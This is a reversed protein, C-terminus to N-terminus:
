WRNSACFCVITVAAEQVVLQRAGSTFTRCSPRPMTRPVMVVICSRVLVCATTSLPSLSQRRARADLMDSEGVVVPEALAMPSIKGSSFPWNFPRATRTGNSLAESVSKTKVGERLVVTSSTLANSLAPLSAM